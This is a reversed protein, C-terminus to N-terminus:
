PAVGGIRASQNSSIVRLTGVPWHPKVSRTLAKRTEEDTGSAGRAHKQYRYEGVQESQYGTETLTLRCLEIVVRAVELLDTPMYTATVIPGKWIGSAREIQSGRRLIRVDGSAVTVGADTVVASDCRRALRLPAYPEDQIWWFTATRVPYPLSWSPQIPNLLASDVYFTQTAAQGLGAPWALERALTAEERAIVDQLQDDTLANPVLARVDSPTVLTSSITRVATVEVSDSGGIALGDITGAWEAEYTGLVADVAVYWDYHYTGTADTVIATLDVPFGALVSGNPENITLTLDPTNALNGDGDRTEASWTYVSGRAASM